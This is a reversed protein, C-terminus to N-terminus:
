EPDIPLIGILQGDRLDIVATMSSERGMLPVYGLDSEPRGTGAVFAQVAAKGDPKDKALAPLPKAKKIVAGAIEAYPVYYKPYNQADKGAVGSFVLKNWEEPDDKSPLKVGILRPGSLSLIRYEPPGAELDARDLDSAGVLEFRDVVFATYVPRVEFTVWVGYVLAAVQLAAIVGLDFKLGKKKPNFIILTLLPGLTVDVGVLIKLLGKGGMADFYPPPYWMLLMVAVVTTAIVASLGLHISAAKWRNLAAIQM